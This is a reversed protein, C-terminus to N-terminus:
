DAEKSDETAVPVRLEGALLKPLFLRTGDFSTLVARVTIIGMKNMSERHAVLSGNKKQSGM